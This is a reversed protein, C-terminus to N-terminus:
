FSKQPNFFGRVLALCIFFSFTLLAYFVWSVIPNARTDDNTLEKISTVNRFADFMAIRWGYFKLQARVPTPANAYSVAKAQLDASNFKFYFPFGWHTDENRYPMTKEGDVSKTYIFYVDRTPGDAPNDAGIFGDKDMRKVEGGTVYVEDYHPFAYSVLLGLAAHAVLIIFILGYKAIKKILLM